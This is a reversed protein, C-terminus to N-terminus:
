HDRQMSASWENMWGRTGFFRCSFTAVESARKLAVPFDDKNKLIFYCFAGHLIDGAGLTDVPVIANEVALVGSEGDLEYLISDGGRSIAAHRTGAKRLYRFVEDSSECGPPLFRQSCIAYEIFPLLEETGPKWSGCDMVSPIGARKAATCAQISPQMQHGDVLVLDASNLEDPDGQFVAQAKLANMSVVSREGTGGKVMVSSFSIPSTGDPTLDSITVGHTSLDQIAIQNVPHNGIASYLVSDGGLFSFTIAANSAPGGAALLQDSAVI